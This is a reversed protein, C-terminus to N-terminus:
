KATPAPAAKPQIIAHVRGGGGSGDPGAKVAFYQSREDVFIYNGLVQDGGRTVRADGFLEIKQHHEDIVIRQAHGKMWEGPRGDKPDTKQRFRVPNGTATAHQFGDIDRHVVIRDAVVRLTGQTLVVDGQFISIRAAEDSSMSNADIQMPKDRDAAEALAARPMGALLVLIVTALRLSARM